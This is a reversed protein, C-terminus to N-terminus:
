VPEFSEKKCQASWFLDKVMGQYLGKLFGEKFCSYLATKNVSYWLQAKFWLASDSDILSM